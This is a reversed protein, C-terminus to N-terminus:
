AVSEAHIIGRAMDWISVANDRLFDEIQFLETETFGYSHTCYNAPLIFRAYVDMNNEKEVRIEINEGGHEKLVKRMQRIDDATRTFSAAVFDFDEQVAFVLDKYDKPSIYDMSLEVNPVNVGKKNSIEGGNVVKCLIETEEVDKVIMEILGDDILIHDGIKVDDTLGKYTISVKTEDGEVDETCLTFDQGEELMISGNKFEKLRIEPGKTDLLTAVPLGLEERVARINELKGRQEDYDGHSFNLRCVNMGALMLKRLTDQDQSAPGITCIIKTKRKYEM